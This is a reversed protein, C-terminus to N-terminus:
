QNEGDRCAVHFGPTNQYLTIKLIVLKKNQELFLGSPNKLFESFKGLHKWRQLECVLQEYNKTQEDGSHQLYTLVCIYIFGDYCLQLFATFFSFIVFNWIGM